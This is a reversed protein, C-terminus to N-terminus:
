YVYRSGSEELLNALIIDAEPHKQECFISILKEPYNARLNKTVLAAAEYQEVEKLTEITAFVGRAKKIAICLTVAAGYHRVLTEVSEETAVIAGAIRYFDKPNSGSTLMRTNILKVLAEKHRPLM